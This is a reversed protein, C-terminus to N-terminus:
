VNSYFRIFNNGPPYYSCVTVYKYRCHNAIACGLRTSSQWMLQTFHATSPSIIANRPDYQRIESYWLDVDRACNLNGGALNEGFGSGYNGSHDF